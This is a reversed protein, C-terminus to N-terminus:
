HNQYTAMNPRFSRIWHSGPKSFCAHSIHSKSNCCLFLFCALIQGSTVRQVTLCHASVTILFKDYNEKSTTSILSTYAPSIVSPKINVHRSDNRIEVPTPTPTPIPRLEMEGEPITKVGHHGSKLSRKPAKWNPLQHDQCPLGSVPLTKSRICMCRCAGIRTIRGPHYSLPAPIHPPKRIFDSVRVRWFPCYAPVVLSAWQYYSTCRGCM